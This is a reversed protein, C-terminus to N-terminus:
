QTLWVCCLLVATYVSSYSSGLRAGASLVKFVTPQNILKLLKHYDLLDSSGGGGSAISDSTSACSYVSSGEVSTGSGGEEGDTGPYHRRRSGRSSSSPLQRSWSSYNLPRDDRELEDVSGRSGEVSSTDVTPGQLALRPVQGLSTRPISSTSSSHPTMRLSAMALEESLPTENKRGRGKDKERLVISIQPRGRPASRGGALSTSLLTKVPVSRVPADPAGQNNLNPIYCM